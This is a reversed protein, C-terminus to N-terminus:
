HSNDVEDLRMLPSPCHTMGSTTFPEIEQKPRPRDRLPHDRYRSSPSRHASDQERKMITARAAFGPISSSFGHNLLLLPRGEEIPEKMTLLTMSAFQSSASTAHKLSATTEGLSSFRECDLISVDPDRVVDLQVEHIQELHTFKFPGVSQFGITVPDFSGDVLFLRDPQLKHTM